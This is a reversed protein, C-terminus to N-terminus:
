SEKTWGPFLDDLWEPSGLKTWDGPGPVIPQSSMLRVDGWYGRNTERIPGEAAGRATVLRDVREGDSLAAIEADTAEDGCQFNYTETFPAVPGVIEKVQSTIARQVANAAERLEKAEAELEAAEAALADHEQQLSQVHEDDRALREKERLAAHTIDPGVALLWQRKAPNRAVKFRRGRPPPLMARSELSYRANEIRTKVVAQQLTDALDDEVLQLARDLSEAPLRKLTLGTTAVSRLADRYSLDAVRQAKSDDLDALSRAVQMYAQASRESVECHDALWPLWQGHPVQRKAEILMEGARRAHELGRKVSAAYAEHEIRIRAALDALSNSQSIDTTSAPMNGTANDDQMQFEM